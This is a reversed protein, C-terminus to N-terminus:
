GPAPELALERRRSSRRALSYAALAWVLTMTHFSTQVPSFAADWLGLITLLCAVSSATSTAIGDILARVAIAMLAVILLAGLPGFWIWFNAIVSHLEFRGGFLFREVYGNNPDYNLTSMGTKALWVDNATPVAGPGLGHPHSEILATSAGLEPRGGTLLSGSADLQTQTRQAASDGLVGDLLLAQFLNYGGIVGVALAALLAGRNLAAGNRRAAQVTVLAAALLLFATMSRSDSGSSVGAMALLVGIELLRSGVVMAVGLLTITVPLAWSYKWPNVPNAGNIVVHTLAGLGFGLVTWRIGIITLAWFLLGGCAVLAVAAMVQVVLTRPDYRNADNFMAVMLGWTVACVGLILVKRL